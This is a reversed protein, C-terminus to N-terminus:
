HPFQGSIGINAEILEEPITLGITVVNGATRVDLSNLVPQLRQAKPKHQLQAIGALFRVLEGLAAADEPTRAVVETCVNVTNGFKMGGSAGEISKLADGQLAGGAASAPLQGALESVPVTSVFWAEQAASLVGIRAALGPSIGPGGQRRDIAGRVSDIDGAVATSTDLFTFVMGRKGVIAVGNYMTLSAGSSTALSVIRTPDFLGRALVLKRTEGRGGPTAVIVESLDRRPDFGTKVVFQRLDESEQASLRSLLFQGFPSNRVGAVDIGAIIRADPMALNLLGSDAGPAALAAALMLGLLKPMPVGM